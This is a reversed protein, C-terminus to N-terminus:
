IGKPLPFIPVGSALLMNERAEQIDSLDGSHESVPKTGAIETTPSIATLYKPPTSKHMDIVVKTVTRIDVCQQSRCCKMVKAETDCTLLAAKLDKLIAVPTLLILSIKDYHTFLFDMLRLWDSKSLVETFMSSIMAWGLMGIAISMKKLHTYLKSDHYKLLNDISDIFHLPPNPHAVHWSHGWWMFITMSAELASLEDKGFM